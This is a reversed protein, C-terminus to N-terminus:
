REREHGKRLPLRSIVVCVNRSRKRESTIVRRAFAEADLVNSQQEGIQLARRRKVVPDAVEIGEREHLLM